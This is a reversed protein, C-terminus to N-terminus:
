SGRSRSKRAKPTKRIEDLVGKPGGMRLRTGPAVDTRGPQDERRAGVVFVRGKSCGPLFIRSSDKPVPKEQAAAATALVLVSVVLAILKM